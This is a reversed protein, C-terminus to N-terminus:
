QEGLTKKIGDIDFANVAGLIEQENAFNIGQWMLLTTQGAPLTVKYGSNDNYEIIAKHGKVKIQKWNQKEGTTQGYAGNTLFLNVASMMLSNNSIDLTLQKDDKLYERHMTLGAWGWGMSSVQDEDPQKPLGAINEPLEALIKKGIELEVGLMAQQVAYRADGYTGAKFATGASTLNEKVDPPTTILGGGGKNSPSNKGTRGTAGSGTSSGTRGQPTEGDIKEDIKKDVIREAARGAKQKIKGLVGQANSNITCCLLAILTFTAIPKM